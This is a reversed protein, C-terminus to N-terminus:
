QVKWEVKIEEKNVLVTQGADPLIVLGQNTSSECILKVVIEQNWIRQLIDGDIVITDCCSVQQASLGEITVGWENDTFVIRPSNEALNVYSPIDLNCIVRIADDENVIVEPNTNTNQDPVALDDDKTCGVMAVLMAM